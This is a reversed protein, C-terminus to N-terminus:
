RSRPETCLISLTIPENLFYRSVRGFHNSVAPWVKVTVGPPAARLAFRTTLNLVLQRSADTTCVAIEYTCARWRITALLTRHTVRKKADGDGKVFLFFSLFFFLFPLFFFRSREIRPDRM